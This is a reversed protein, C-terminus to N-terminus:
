RHPKQHAGCACASGGGRDGAKVQPVLVDVSQEEVRDNIRDVPVSRDAGRHAGVRAGRLDCWKTSRSRCCPLVLARQSRTEARLALEGRSSVVVGEELEIVGHFTCCWEVCM